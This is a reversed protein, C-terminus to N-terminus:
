HYPLLTKLNKTNVKAVEHDRRKNRTVKGTERSNFHDQGSTRQILKKKKTIQIRKSTTKHTKLKPMFLLIFYKKFGSYMEPYTYM